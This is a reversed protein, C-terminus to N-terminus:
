KVPITEKVLNLLEKQHFPHTLYFDSIGFHWVATCVRSSHVSVTEAANIASGFPQSRLFQSNIPLNRKRLLM